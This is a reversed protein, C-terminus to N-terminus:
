LSSSASVFASSMVEPSKIKELIELRARGEIRFSLGKAMRSLSQARGRPEPILDMIAVAAGPKIRSAFSPRKTRECEGKETERYGPKRSAM